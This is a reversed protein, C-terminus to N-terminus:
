EHNFGSQISLGRPVLSQGTYYTCLPYNDWCQDGNVPTEIILGSGVDIPATEPLPIPTVAYAISVPGLNWSREQAISDFQNREIASFATISGICV